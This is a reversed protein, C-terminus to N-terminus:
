ICPERTSGWGISKNSQSDSTSIIFLIADFCAGSQNIFRSTQNCVFSLYVPTLFVTDYIFITWITLVNKNQMYGENLDSMCVM